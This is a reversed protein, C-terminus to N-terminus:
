LIEGLIKVIRQAARGDWFKPCKGRKFNGKLIKKTEKIILKEDSGVLVNTGEKITIPRETNERLSLCPIGLYTTEEQIGGSDTLVFKANMYLQLFDIYALPDLLKMNKSYNNLRFEEIQKKTRPHVPFVIEIHENIKKIAKFIKQLTKKNDVNSPRHLTLVAYNKRKLGLKQLIKSKQAKEKLRILTDIMVNGVFFIKKQSIGEKKLNVNADSCTTFLYEALSDAVIRNIEEPMTRDFSRLGSEIHAVPVLLKAAVVSCALTSNIDGVVVILDPKKEVCIKEFKVMVNATQVAHSGSGVGLYIDPKPLGLDRFFFDSMNKDYHQGTHIIIANISNNPKRKNYCRIEHYIPAIKMFNPRAGAVLFIKRKYKKRYKSFCNNKKM